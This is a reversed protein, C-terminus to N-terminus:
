ETQMNLTLWKELMKMCNQVIVMNILTKLATFSFIDLRLAALHLLSVRLKPPFVPLVSM